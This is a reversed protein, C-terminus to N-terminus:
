AFYLLFSSFGVESTELALEGSNLLLRRAFILGSQGTLRGAASNFVSMSPDGKM